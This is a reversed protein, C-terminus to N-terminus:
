CYFYRQVTSVPPFDKPLYRWPCSTAAIDLIANLVKRQDTTRPRGLERKEPMFPAVFKWERDTLNSAYRTGRRAYGARPSIM